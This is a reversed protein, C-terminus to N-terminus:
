ALKADFAQQLRASSNQGRAPPQTKLLHSYTENTDNYGGKGKLGGLQVTYSGEKNERKKKGKKLDFREGHGGGIISGRRGKSLKNWREKKKREESERM